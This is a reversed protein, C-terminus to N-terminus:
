SACFMDVRHGSFAPEAWCNLPPYSSSIAWAPSSHVPNCGGSAGITPVYVASACNKCIVNPGPLLGSPRLHCADFATALSQDPRRIVIMRVTVGEAEISFRHLNGDSVTAVPIRVFGNVAVVAGRAFAFQHLARLHIRGHHGSLFATAACSAAM